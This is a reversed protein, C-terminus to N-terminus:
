EMIKEIEVAKHSEIFSSILDLTAEPADMPVFHGANNVQRL